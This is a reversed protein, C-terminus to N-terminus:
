KLMGQYNDSKRGLMERVYDGFKTGNTMETIGVSWSSSGAWEGWEYPQPTPEVLRYPYPERHLEPRPLTLMIEGYLWAILQGLKDFFDEDEMAQALASEPGFLEIIRARTKRVLEEKQTGV